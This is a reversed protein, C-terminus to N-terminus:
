APRSSRLAEMRETFREWSIPQVDGSELQKARRQSEASWHQEVSEEDAHEEDLSSLLGSALMARDSRPLALAQELLTEPAIAV